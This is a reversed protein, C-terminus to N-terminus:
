MEGMAISYRECSGEMKGFDRGDSMGDCPGVETGVEVWMLDVLSREGVKGDENGEFM